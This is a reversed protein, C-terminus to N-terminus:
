TGRMRACRLLFLASWHRGIATDNRLSYVHTAALVPHNSRRNSTHRYERDTQEATQRLITRIRTHVIIRVENVYPRDRCDFM